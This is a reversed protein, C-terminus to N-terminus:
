IKVPIPIRTELRDSLMETLLEMGEVDDALLISMQQIGGNTMAKCEINLYCIDTGYDYKPIVNIIEKISIIQDGM